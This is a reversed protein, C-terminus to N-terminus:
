ATPTPPTKAATLKNILDFTYNSGRSILVGTLIVGVYPVNSIVGFLAFIDVNFSLAFGVGVLLSILMQWQFKGNLIFSNFYTILAEIIIAAFIVTFLQM